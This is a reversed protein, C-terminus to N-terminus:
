VERWSDYNDLLRSRPLTSREVRRESKTNKTQKNKKKNKNKPFGGIIHIEILDLRSTCITCPCKTHDVALPCRWNVHCQLLWRCLQVATFSDYDTSYFLCSIVGACGSIFKTHRRPVKRNNNNTLLSALNLTLLENLCCCTQRLLRLLIINQFAAPGASAEEGKIPRGEAEVLTQVQPVCTSMVVDLIGQM